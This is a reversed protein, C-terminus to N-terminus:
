HILMTRLRKIKSRAADNFYWNEFYAVIVEKQLPSLHARLTESDKSRGTLQELLVSLIGESRDPERECFRLFAPLYYAQAKPELAMFVESPTAFSGQERKYVGDSDLVLPPGLMELHVAPWRPSGKFELKAFPGVRRKLEPTAFVATNTPPDSPFVVYFDAFALGFREVLDHYQAFTIRHMGPLDTLLVESNTKGQTIFSSAIGAPDRFREPNKVLRLLQRIRGRWHLPAATQNTRSILWYDFAFQCFEIENQERQSKNIQPDTLLEDRLDIYNKFLWDADPREIAARIPCCVLLTSTVILFFRARNRINM